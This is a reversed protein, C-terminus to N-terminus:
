SAQRMVVSGETDVEATADILYTRRDNLCRCKYRKRLRPGKVFLRDNFRFITRERIQELMIGPAPDYRRLTRILRQDTCSAAPAKLLHRHLADLVDAPFVAPSLFPRMLRHYEEKWAPGHPDRWRHHKTVVVYHAFEHVLTVLFAYPNLDGNVSIRHPRGKGAATFDGLKSTRPRAIRVLVPNERLWHLVIPFAPEPLRERLRSLDTAHTM